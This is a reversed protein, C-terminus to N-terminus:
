FGLEAATVNPLDELLRNPLTVKAVVTSSRRDVKTQGLWKTKESGERDLAQTVDKLLTEAVAASDEQEYAFAAVLGETGPRLAVTISSLHRGLSELPAGHTRLRPVGKVLSPGDLRVVFLSADDKLPSPRDFPHAFAERARPRADGMAFLWTREPLVFLSADGLGARTLEPVAGRPGDVWMARGNADALKRADLDARVGRLVVVADGAGRERVAFIVEESSELVEAARAGATQPARAAMMRSVSKLMPGYVPDRAMIAPHAVVYIDPVRDFVDQWHPRTTDFAPRTDPPKGGGCATLGLGFAFALGLARAVRRAPRRM